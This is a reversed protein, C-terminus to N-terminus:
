HSISKKNRACPILAAVVLTAGVAAVLIYGYRVAFDFGFMAFAAALTFVCIASTTKDGIVEDAQEVIPYACSVISCVGALTITVVAYVKVPLSTIGCLTPLSLNFDALRITILLLGAIIVSSAASRFVNQKRTASHGLRCLVALTMTMNFLAYLAPMYPAPQDSLTTSATGQAFLIAFLIATMAISVVNCIKLASMGNLMVLASLAAALIAYVPLNGVNILQTMCQQVGALATVVCVFACLGLLMNFASSFRPMCATSLERPTSLQLIRCKERINSVIFCFVVAFIVANLPNGVFVQAEKGSILGVGVVSGIVVAMDSAAAFFNRLFPQKSM